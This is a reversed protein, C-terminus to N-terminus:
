SEQIQVETLGNPITGSFNNNSLAVYNLSSCRLLSAPLQGSLMNDSMSIYAITGDSCLGKPLGGSDLSYLLSHKELEQPQIGSLFNNSLQLNTLKPFLSISHPISGNFQNSSLFLRTLQELKGISEPIQASLNNSSIDIEVLNAAEIPGNIQGSLLNAHLQLTVPRLFHLSEILCNVSLDFYEINNVKSMADPIEGIINLSIPLAPKFQGISSPSNGSLNNSALDLYALSPSLQDINSPLSDVLSNYSLDLYRLNSCSYLVTPFSGSISNCCLDIHSLRMLSCIATPLSNLGHRPFSIGTVFGDTCNIGPWSCHDKYIFSSWNVTVPRGWSRELSLLVAKEADRSITECNSQLILYTFLLLSSLVKLVRRYSPDQLIMWKNGRMNPRMSSGSRRCCPRLHCERAMSCAYPSQGVAQSSVSQVKRWQCRRCCVAEAVTVQNTRSCHASSMKGLVEGSPKIAQCYLSLEISYVVHVVFNGSDGDDNDDDWRSSESSMRRSGKKTELLPAAGDVYDLQCVELGQSSMRDCRILHHLVEKMSPRTLSNEGTCFVGLMFVSMIDQLNAHDRIDEDVVDNYPPGKQYRRWAWEALCFDAAADNAVKGTTLELLVVGFSYVDVKENVRKSYVYEPAMYGFTGGIASVSEPEGSKLLMRALGFDAIKAQFEPDLLINSSKVDRHVIPPSCDHHMYCLGRAADVAIALRTPWDLPAPAGDRDLHHLWRDLSGNEMYEYVLLKADQSSICCLLKVINNHRINGLVNVEAEFEKDLKADLKRANWIKKVAVIRGGSVDRSALHIRYVKGSGGSGIVNEERINNLVDSEAFDLPTFPTMKWDTVHQNDKRRRLLLWAIGASGVLVISALVAFLIILGKSLEDHGSGDGNGGACPPLNTGSGPRACLHNGLFSRDYAASQLPLPVEGILQNSSMNLSNFNLGGLDSPIDGTLENGSLDLYNLTHFTGFTASPISGSIRNGSLNLSNLKQLLKISAPISGSIRNGPVSLETLNTLKSMDAPLEGTLQNNGAKFVLLKIASTPISGSFMNDGMDIRTINPSIEAPLAGTFSNNQIMVTTLKQFSWIKEPFDGSFRNNYLMLNNMRVCDGLNAPLKGSFSNNFAVIDFLVKNACLTEPLKGSFNNNSIEINGLRSHAGLEPPLEGSLNNDFLRIDMLKPLLGISAPIMGTLKNFYLFLLSLNKMNGFDESIEGRLQNSSLDIEVLNVASVNRPLEGTLENNFLYLFELKQHNWVWAPIDGVLKNSSMDFLTLETLSGLAAPIEGTINMEGMWLYNLKTLRGLEPPVPAPDFANIALTLRELSSLNAGIEAAPYAGTFRNTDLVLSKLGRLSAVSPPVEGSFHNSSLNLHEMTAPSLNAIDRPLNGDLGNGSLDLFSLQACRYLAASPFAGALQNSSLDLRALNTLECVAAPVTGTLNMNALALETVVSKGDGSDSCTVGVWGCHDGAAAAAPDWAALHRPNGWAKRIAVLTDRDGAAASSAGALLLLATLLLLPYTNPM